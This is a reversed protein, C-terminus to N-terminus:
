ILKTEGSRGQLIYIYTNTKMSLHLNSQYQLFFIGFLKLQQQDKLNVIVCKHIALFTGCRVM